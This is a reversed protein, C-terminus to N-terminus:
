VCSVETVISSAGKVTEFVSGNECKTTDNLGYAEITELDLKVPTFMTCSEFRGDQTVPLTLNKQKEETLNPELQLIWDTNCHHPFSLGVFVQGIVDFATFLTSFCLAAVLKKQFLGFEGIEKLIERFNSM